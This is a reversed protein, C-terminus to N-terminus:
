LSNRGMASTGKRAAQCSLSYLPFPAEALLSHTSQFVVRLDFCGYFKNITGELQKGFCVDYQRKKGVFVSEGTSLNLAATSNISAVKSNNELACMTNVPGYSPKKTCPASERTGFARAM